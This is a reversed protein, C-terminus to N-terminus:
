RPGCIPQLVQEFGIIGQEYNRGLGGDFVVSHQEVIDRHHFGNALGELYTFHGMHNIYTRIRDVRIRWIREILSRRGLGPGQVSGHVQGAFQHQAM